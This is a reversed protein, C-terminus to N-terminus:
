NWGIRPQIYGLSSINAM